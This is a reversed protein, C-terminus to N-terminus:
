LTGTHGFGGEGRDTSPLKNVLQWRIREVKSLVLQAIRSGPSVVFQSKGHNILIVGIEGRYDSDITGPTNLITVQHNHALGSRPRVQIEYGPPIAISLGTPILRSEGSEIIWDETINARVDMGASQETSYEPLTIDRDLVPIVVSSNNVSSQNTGDRLQDVIEEFKGKGAIENYRETRINRLDSFDTKIARGNLYDISLRNNRLLRLIEEVYPRNPPNSNSNAFFSAVPSEEWLRGILAVLSIDSVDVTSM